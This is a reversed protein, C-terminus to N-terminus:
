LDLALIFFLIQWSGLCAGMVLVMCAAYSIIRTTQTIPSTDNACIIDLYEFTAFVSVGSVLAAFVLISGKIIVWLLFPTLVLATLWRKFHQMM